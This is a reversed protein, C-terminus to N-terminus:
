EASSAAALFCSSSAFSAIWTHVEWPRANVRRRPRNRARGELDRSDGDRRQGRGFPRRWRRDAGREM